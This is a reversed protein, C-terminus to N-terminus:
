IINKRIIIEIIPLKESGSETTKIEYNNREFIKEDRLTKMVEQVTDVALRNLALLFFRQNNHQIQHRCFNMVEVPKDENKVFMSSNEWDEILEDFVEELQNEPYGNMKLDYLHRLVVSFFNTTPFKVIKLLRNGNPRRLIGQKVFKIRQSNKDKDLGVKITQNYNKILLGTRILDLYRYKPVLHKVEQYQPHRIFENLLMAEKKDPVFAYKGENQKDVIVEKIKNYGKSSFDTIGKATLYVLVDKLPLNSIQTIIEVVTM